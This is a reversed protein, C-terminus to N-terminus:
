CWPCVNRGFPLLIKEASPCPVSLIGDKDVCAFVTVNGLSHVLDTTRTLGGTGQFVEIFRKWLHSVPVPVSIEDDIRTGAHAQADDVVEHFFALLYANGLASSVRDVLSGALPVLCAAVYCQKAIISM